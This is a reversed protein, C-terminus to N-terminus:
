FFNATHIVTGQSGASAPIKQAALGMWVAIWNDVPTCSSAWCQQRFIVAYDNHSPSAM